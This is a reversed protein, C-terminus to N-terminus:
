PRPAPHSGDPQFDKGEVTPLRNMVALTRRDLHGEFRPVLGPVYYHADPDVSNLSNPDQADVRVVARGRHPDFCPRDQHRPSM